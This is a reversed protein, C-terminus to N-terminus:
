VEVNYERLIDVLRKWENKDYDSGKAKSWLTHFLSHIENDYKDKDDTDFYAETITEDSFSIAAKCRARGCIGLIADITKGETNTFEININDKKIFFDKRISIKKGTNKYKQKEM